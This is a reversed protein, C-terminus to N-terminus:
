PPMEYSEFPTQCPIGDALYLKARLPFYIVSSLTYSDSEIEPHRCIATLDNGHQAMLDKSWCLDVQGRALGLRKEVEKRREISNGQLHLPEEEGWKSRTGPESFHNTSVIFGKDSRRVIQISHAIEFVAMDGQADILTVTGDGMHPVSFLYQISEMVSNCNELLNAMLSSRHIGPGIDLSNVYTDAVALGARNFGSSSVGPTGASTLCLYEYGKEPKVHALCQLSKLVPNEERNKALIPTSIGTYHNSAAWTTCGDGEQASRRKYKLYYVIVSTFYEEWDIRLAESIGTLMEITGPSYQEWVRIIEKIDSSLEPDPIQLEELRAKISARIKPYLDAVQEGHQQGIQRPNGSLKLVRVM